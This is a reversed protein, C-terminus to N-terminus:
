ARSFTYSVNKNREDSGELQDAPVELKLTDRAKYLFGKQFNLRRPQRDVLLSDPLNLIRRGDDTSLIDASFFPPFRYRFTRLTHTFSM